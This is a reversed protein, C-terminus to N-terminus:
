HICFCSVSLPMQVSPMVCSPLHTLSWSLGLSLRVAELQTVFLHSLIGTSESVKKLSRGLYYYCVSEEPPQSLSGSVSLSSGESDDSTLVPSGLSRQVCLQGSVLLLFVLQLDPCGSCGWRTSQM